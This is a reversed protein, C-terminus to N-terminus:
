LIMNFKCTGEKNFGAVRHTTVAHDDSTTYSEDYAVVIGEPIYMASVFTLKNGSVKAIAFERDLLKALDLHTIEM